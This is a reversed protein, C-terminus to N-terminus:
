FSRYPDLVPALAARWARHGAPNLHLGDGDHLRPDLGGGAGRLGASSDAFRCGPRAACARAIVANAARVEANGYPRFAAEDVPLVADVMVPVGAPIGARLRPSPRALAGPERYRLDNTGVHLVVLRAGRIAPLLGRLRAAARRATEGPISLQAARDALAGVDLAALLSDGLFVVAGPDVAAAHLRLQAARRRFAHDKEVWRSGLGLKWALQGPLPSDWLLGAAAVHLLLLYLGMALVLAPRHAFYLAWLRDPVLRRLAAEARPRSPAGTDATPM